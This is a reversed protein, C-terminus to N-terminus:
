QSDGTVVSNDTRVIRRWSIREAADRAVAGVSVLDEKNCDSWRRKPRGRKRKGATMKMVRKGVYSEDRRDVHGFWRLRSEKIKDTLKKEIGLRERINEDRVKDKRAVGVEYRMKMEAVELKKEQGNTLVATELGCLMAPRVM